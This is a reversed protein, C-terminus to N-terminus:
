KIKNLVKAVTAKVNTGSPITAHCPASPSYTEKNRSPMGAGTMKPERNNLKGIPELMKSM